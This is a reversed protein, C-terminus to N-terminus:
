KKNSHGLLNKMSNSTRGQIRFITSHCIEQLAVAEWNRAESQEIDIQENGEKQREQSIRVDDTSLTPAGPEGM